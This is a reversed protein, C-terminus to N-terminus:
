MKFGVFCLLAVTARLIHPLEWSGQLVVAGGLDVLAFTPIGDQPGRLVFAGGHSKPRELSPWVAVANRRVRLSTVPFCGLWNEHVKFCLLAM